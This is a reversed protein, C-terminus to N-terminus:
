NERFKQIRYTYFDSVFIDGSPDVAIDQTSIFAGDGSGQSVYEKLFQGENTFKMFGIGNHCVVWLDDNSDLSLGMPETSPCSQYGNLAFQSVFTGENDFKKIVKESGEAVYIYGQSDAEIDYQMNGTGHQTYDTNNTYRRFHNAEYAGVFINGSQDVGIGRPSFSTMSQGPHSSAAIGSNYFKKIKGEIYDTAYVFGDPSVAVGFVSKMKGEHAYCTQCHGGYSRIFNGEPDFKQVRSTFYGDDAVYLNGAIDM